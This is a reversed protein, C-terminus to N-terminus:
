GVRGFLTRTKLIVKVKLTEIEINQAFFHENLFSNSRTKIFLSALNDLKERFLIPRTM